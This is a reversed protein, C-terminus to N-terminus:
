VDNATKMQAAVIIVSAPVAFLKGHIGSLVENLKLLYSQKKEELKEKEDEFSFENLFLEYNNNYRKEIEQFESFLSSTKSAENLGQTHQSIAKKFLAIKTKKHPSSILEEKFKDIDYIFKGDKFLQETYRLSIEEKGTPSLFILSKLNQSTETHDAIDYLLNFIKILCLYSKIEQNESENSKCYGDIEAIYFENPPTYSFDFNNLFDNFNKAFFFYENRTPIFKLQLNQYSDIENEDIVLGEHNEIEMDLTDHFTNIFEKAEKTVKFSAFVSADRWKPEELTKYFDMLQQFEPTM